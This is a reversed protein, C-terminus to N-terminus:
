DKSPSPEQGDGGQEKRGHHERREARLKALKVRQEPTLVKRMELVMLARVKGLKARAQEILDVQDLVQKDDVQDAALLADLDDRKTEVDGKLHRLTQQNKGLIDELSRVEDDTLQLAERVDGKKWFKGKHLAGHWHSGGLASAGPVLLNVALLLVGFTLRRSHNTM